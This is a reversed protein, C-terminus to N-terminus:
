ARAAEDRLWESRPYLRNAIKASISEGDQHGAAYMRRQLALSYRYPM